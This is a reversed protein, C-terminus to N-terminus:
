KTSIDYEKLKSKIHNFLQEVPNLWPSYSANFLVLAKMKRITEFLSATKHIRANDLFILVKRECLDKDKRISALTHFIFNEFLVGDVGGEIIQNAIVRDESIASILSM